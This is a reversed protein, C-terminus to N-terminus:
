YINYNDIFRRWYNVADLYLVLALAEFNDYPILGKVPKRDGSWHVIHPQRHQLKYRTLCSKIGQDAKMNWLLSANSYTHNTFLINVWTQSGIGCPYNATHLWNKMGDFIDLSPTIGWIGTNYDNGTYANCAQPTRLETTNKKWWQIFMKDPNQLVALDGDM